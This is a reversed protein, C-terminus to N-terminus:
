GSGLRGPGYGQPFMSLAKQESHGVKCSRHIHNNLKTFFFQYQQVEELWSCGHEEIFAQLCIQTKRSRSLFCPESHGLNASLRHNTWPKDKTMEQLRIKVFPNYCTVAGVAIKLPSASSKASTCSISLNTFITDIDKWIMNM